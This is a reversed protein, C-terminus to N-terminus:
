SFTGSNDPVGSIGRPGGKEFPSVRGRKNSDLVPGFIWPPPNWSPKKLTGYWEGPMFVAGFSAALFCAALWGIFGLALRRDFRFRLIPSSQNM